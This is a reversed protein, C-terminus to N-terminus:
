KKACLIEGDKSSPHLDPTTATAANCGTACPIQGEDGCKTYGSLGCASGWPISIERNAVVPTEADEGVVFVTQTTSPTCNFYSYPWEFNQFTGGACQPDGIWVPGTSAPLGIM